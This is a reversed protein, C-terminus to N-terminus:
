KRRRWLIVILSGLSVGIIRALWNEASGTAPLVKNTPQVTDDTHGQSTTQPTARQRKKGKGDASVASQEDVTGEDIADGDGSGTVLDNAGGSISRTVQRDTVVLQVVLRQGDGTTLTVPYSGVARLNVQSLDLYVVESQGQRNTAVAQFDRLTPADDGVYTTYNRATLRRLDTVTLKPTSIHPHVIPLVPRIPMIGPTEPTVPLIPTGPVTPKPATPKPVVPAPQSPKPQEPKPAEPKPSVPKPLEPKPSVPKPVEPKPVEPKPVEPKPLEPKPLEPKLEEQEPQYVFFVARETEQYSGTQLKPEAVLHLHPYQKEALVYSDGLLGRTTTSDLLKGTSGNLYYAVVQGLRKRYTMTVESPDSEFNGLGDDSRQLLQYKHADLEPLQYATTVRGTITQDQQIAKGDEDLYHVLVSGMRPQWVYTEPQSGDYQLMLQDATWVQKGVPDKVTGKGVNQWFGTYLRNGSTMSLGASQLKQSDHLVSKPGLKLEHLEGLGNLMGSYGHYDTKIHTLDFSSLDLSKLNEMGQFTNKAYNLQPTQWGSVNLRRMSSGSFMESLDTAQALTWGSLDLSDTQLGSFMNTTRSVHRMDWRNMKIQDVQAGAFLDMVMSLHSTDWSNLDLTGTIRDGTFLGQMSRVQSTDINELGKIEGIDGLDGFTYGASSPLKVPGEISISHIKEKFEGWKSWSGGTPELTGAHIHLVGYGDIQWKCTGNKGQYTQAFFGNARQTRHQVAARAKAQAMPPQTLMDWYGGLSMGLLTM